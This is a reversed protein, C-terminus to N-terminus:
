TGKPKRQVFGKGTFSMYLTGSADRAENHTKILGLEPRSKLEVKATVTSTYTLAVGPRVPKLWRLNEFGPSVGARQLPNGEAAERKRSEIGLRMWTCATHWGSAIIGGFISAKAAERDIHFPQPDYKRAFAIIEDETFAHTGLIRKTGIEVDEFWM